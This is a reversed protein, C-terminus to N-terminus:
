GSKTQDPQSSVPIDPSVVFWRATWHEDVDAGIGTHVCTHTRYACVMTGMRREHQEETVGARNQREESEPTLMLSADNTVRSKDQLHNSQFFCKDGAFSSPPAACTQNQIDLIASRSLECKRTHVICVYMCVYMTLRHHSVFAGAPKPHDMVSPALLSELM